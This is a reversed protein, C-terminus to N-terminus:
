LGRAKIYGQLLVFMGYSLTRYMASNSLTKVLSFDLEELERFNPRDLLFKHM